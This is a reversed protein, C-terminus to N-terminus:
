GVEMVQWGCIPEEANMYTFPLGGTSTARVSTGPQWAAAARSRWGWCVTCCSCCCCRELQWEGSVSPLTICVNSTEIGNINVDACVVAACLNIPAM